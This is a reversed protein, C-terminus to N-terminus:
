CCYTKRKGFTWVKVIQIEHTQMFLDMKNIPSINKLFLAIERIFKIVDNKLFDM